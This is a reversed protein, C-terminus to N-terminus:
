CSAMGQSQQFWAPLPRARAPLAMPTYRECYDPQIQVIGRARRFGDLWRYATARCVEFHTMVDEAIPMTRRTSMWDYFRISEEMNM